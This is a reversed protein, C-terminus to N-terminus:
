PTSLDVEPVEEAREDVPFMEKKEFNFIGAIINNPFTQVANNYTTVSANYDQRAVNIRNETGELETMLNSALGSSKLDPYNEMVVLLRGIVGTGSELSGLESNGDNLESPTSAGAMSARADAIDGMISKEQVMFGKVAKVQNPILDARRLMTSKVNAFALETANRKTVMGNYAGAISGGVILVLVLLGALVAGFIGFSKM